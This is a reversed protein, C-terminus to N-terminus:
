LPLKQLVERDYYNLAAIVLTNYEESVGCVLVNGEKRDQDIIQNVSNQRFRERGLSEPTPHVNIPDQEKMKGM